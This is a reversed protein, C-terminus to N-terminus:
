FDDYVIRTLALGHAPVSFRQPLPTQEDLAKRLQDLTIQGKAVSICAGVILRVMGRLFRNAAIHFVLSHGDDSRVWRAERLDCRYHDVDSHTKCFPAFAEYDLLLAAATNLQDLDLQGATPLWWATETRFPDKRSTIHYEYARDRADFRAHATPSVPVVSFAAMDQPLLGNLSRLITDPVVSETDFHAVYYTAHVGTDTRGCGTVEVEHRLVTTLAGELTGQVSHGEPQRQWGIYHTGRYALTIFYRM